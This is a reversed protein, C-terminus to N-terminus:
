GLREPVSAYGSCCEVNQFLLRGRRAIRYELEVIHDYQRVDPGRRRLRPLRHQIARNVIQDRAQPVLGAQKEGRRLVLSYFPVGFSSLNRGMAETSFSSALKLVGDTEFPISVKRCRGRPQYGVLTRDRSQTFREYHLSARMHTADLTLAIRYHSACFSTFTQQIESSSSSAASALRWLGKPLRLHGFGRIQESGERRHLRSRSGGKRLPEPQHM